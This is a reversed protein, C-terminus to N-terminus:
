NDAYLIEQLRIAGLVCRPGARLMWDPNLDADFYIKDNKIAPIDQWGMRSKVNEKIDKSYCIMIEPKAKLLDEMKIRAYDRELRSFINDGGALEILEGVFSKDSVSMLPERYIELYVKPRPKDKTNAKLGELVTRLSDAVFTAREEKGIAKGITVIGSLMEKISKPYVTVVRVGLKNLESAIAQQELSTAFVISPKLSILLEKNITGFMGVNTKTEYIAPYTCEKTVGVVNDTGELLAIIEAIEPSLVVYRTGVTSQVEKKCSLLSLLCMLLLAFTIWKVLSLKINLMKKM